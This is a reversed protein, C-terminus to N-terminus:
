LDHGDGGLLDLSDCLLIEVRITELNDGDTVRLPNQRRQPLETGNLHPSLLFRSIPLAVSFLAPNIASVESKEGPNAAYGADFRYELIPKIGAYRWQAHLAGRKFVCRAIGFCGDEVADHGFLQFGEQCSLLLPVARHRSKDLFTSILM